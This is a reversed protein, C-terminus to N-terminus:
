VPLRELEKIRALARRAEAKDVERRHETLASDDGLSDSVALSIMAYCVSALLEPMRDITERRYVVPVRHQQGDFEFTVSM